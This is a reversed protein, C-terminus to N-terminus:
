LGEKFDLGLLVSWGAQNFAYIEDAYKLAEEKKMDHHVVEFISAFFSTCLIHILDESPEKVKINKAKLENIFRYTNEVEVDVLSDLYFEYKSGKSKCVIIKFADYHDYIYNLLIHLGNETYITMENIQNKIEKKRKIEKKAFNNQIQKFTALLGEAENGVVADLMEAKDLFRYYLSGTTLKAKKAINRMSADIYGLSLFEEKAAKLIEKMIEENM